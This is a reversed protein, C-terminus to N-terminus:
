ASLRRYLQRVPALDFYENRARVEFEIRTARDRDLLLVGDRLVRHVLDPSASNLVVAQVPVRVAREVDDEIRRAANRLAPQPDDRLLIGLDMDSQARSTARARSGYLYVALVEAPATELTKRAGEALSTESMEPAM